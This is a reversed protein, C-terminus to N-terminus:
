ILRMSRAREYAVGLPDITEAFELGSVYDPGDDGYRAIVTPISIQDCFYLDYEEYQGLSYCARCDHKYRMDAGGHHVCEGHRAPNRHHHNSPNCRNAKEYREGGNKLNKLLKGGVRTANQRGVNRVVVGSSRTM